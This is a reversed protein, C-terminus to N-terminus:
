DSFVISGLKKRNLTGDPFLIEEGFAKVAEELGESGKEMVERAIKDADILEAGFEKLFGSFTSKGSGSMGMVGIVM